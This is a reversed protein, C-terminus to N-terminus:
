EGNCLYEEVSQVCNAGDSVATVVQRLRKTRVDGAAFIGKASTIGDESAVVYGNNDLEAIGKLLSSNPVTGVATFVGDINLLVENGNNLIKVATVKKDGIIEKVVSNLVLKINPTETVAKQLSKNARFENRRHILYVTEAIKSLLLADQLATDGGGVVAVTKDKYFAGDCVACYSVGKGTFEAEGPCGAKRAHAGTALIVTHAEYVDDGCYIKKVDGELEMKKVTASLRKAGFREAQKTFREILEPGSEGEVVGGPYNEIDDTIAIQGGDVAKEIILTNLRSRGAYLGAALGAPGAGVIICDYINSM